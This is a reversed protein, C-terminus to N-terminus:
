GSTAFWPEPDAERATGPWSPAVGTEGMIATRRAAAAHVRRAASLVLATGLGASLWLEFSYEPDDDHPSPGRKPWPAVRGIRVEGTTLWTTLGQPQVGLLYPRTAHTAARRQRLLWPGLMAHAFRAAEIAAAASPFGRFGFAHGNVWAVERGGVHLRFHDAGRRIATMTMTTTM